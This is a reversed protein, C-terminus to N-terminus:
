PFSALSLVFHCMHIHAEFDFQHIPSIKTCNGIKKLVFLSFVVFKDNVMLQTLGSCCINENSTLDSPYYNLFNLQIEEFDFSFHYCKLPSFKSRKLGIEKMEKSNTFTDM